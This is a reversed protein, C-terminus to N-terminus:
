SSRCNFSTLQRVLTQCLNHLIQRLEGKRVNISDESSIDCVLKVVGANGEGIEATPDRVTGIVQHGLVHLQRCFERGIGRSAGVVLWTQPRSTSIDAM